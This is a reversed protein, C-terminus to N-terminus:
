AKREALAELVAAHKEADGRAQREATLEQRLADREAQLSALVELRLTAKALETRIDEATRREIAAEARTM